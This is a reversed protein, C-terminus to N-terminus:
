DEEELEEIHTIARPLIADMTEHCELDLSMQVSLQPAAKIKAVERPKALEKLPAQLDLETKTVDLKTISRSKRRCSRDLRPTAPGAPLASKQINSVFELAVKVSNADYSKQKLKNNHSGVMQYGHYVSAKSSDGELVLNALVKPSKEQNLANQNNRLTKQASATEMPDNIKATRIAFLECTRVDVRIEQRCVHGELLASFTQFLEQTDVIEPISISSPLEKFDCVLVEQLALVDMATTEDANRELFKDVCFLAEDLKTKEETFKGLVAAVQQEVYNQLYNLKRALRQNLEEFCAIIDHKQRDAETRIRFMENDLFASFESATLRLNYISHVNSNEIFSKNKSRTSKAFPGTTEVRSKSAEFLESFANRSKLGLSVGPKKKKLIEREKLGAEPRNTTEAHKRPQIKFTKMLVFKSNLDM